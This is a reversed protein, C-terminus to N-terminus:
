ACVKLKEKQSLLEKYEGGREREGHFLVIWGENGDNHIVNDNETFQVPVRTM